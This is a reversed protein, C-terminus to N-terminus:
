SQSQANGQEPQADIVQHQREEGGGTTVAIRKPQAKQARPVSIRLVGNDFSAQIEDARVEAPLGIQRYVSSVRRERRVYEGQTAEHRETRQGRITLVGDDFTVEVEDPKFGPVSAEIVFESDSQRVDVPLNMFESAGNGQRSGGGTVSQFLQDVQSQLDFLDNWPNWRSLAM